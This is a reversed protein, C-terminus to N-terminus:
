AHAPEKKNFGFFSTVRAKFNSYEFVMAQDYVWKGATCAAIVSALVGLFAVMFSIFGVGTYAIAAFCLVDVLQMLGYFVTGYGILGLTISVVRRTWSPANISAFYDDAAARMREFYSESSAQPQPEIVEDVVTPKVRQARPKADAKVAVPKAAPSSAFRSKTVM